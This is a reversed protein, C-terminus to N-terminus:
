RKRGKSKAGNPGGGLLSDRSSKPLSKFLKSWEFTLLGDENTRQHILDAERLPKLHSDLAPISNLTLAARLQEKTQPIECRRMIEIRNESKVFEKSYELVIRSNSLGAITELSGLREKIEILEAEISGSKVELANRKPAM